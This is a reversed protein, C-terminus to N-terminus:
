RAVYKPPLKQVSGGAALFPDFCRVQGIYRGHQFDETLLEDCGHVEAYAWLHADFWSLHHVAMGYLATRVVREDPWLVPFQTMLSEAELAAADAALLPAGGLDVRPRTTAAVFEVVAQHPVLVNGRAHGERLVSQAIHQKDRNRPDFCYVLINTDILNAV